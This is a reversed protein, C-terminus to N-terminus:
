ERFTEVAPALALEDGTFRPGCPEKSTSIGAGPGARAPGAPQVTLSQTATAEIGAQSPLGPYLSFAAFRFIAQYSTPKKRMQSDTRSALFSGQLPPITFSPADAGLGRSERREAGQQASCGGAYGPTAAGLLPSNRTADMVEELDLPELLDV